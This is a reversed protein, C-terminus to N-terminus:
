KEPGHERVTNAGIELLRPLTFRPDNNIPSPFPISANFKRPYQTVHIKWTAGVPFDGYYTDGTLGFNLHAVAQHEVARRSMIRLANDLSGAFGEPDFTHLYEDMPQRGPWGPLAMVPNMRSPVVVNRKGSLYDPFCATEMTNVVPKGEVFCPVSDPFDRWLDMLMPMAERLAEGIEKEADITEITKQAMFGTHWGVECLTGHWMGHKMWLGYSSTGDKQVTALISSRWGLSAAAVLGQFLSIHSPIAFRADFSM